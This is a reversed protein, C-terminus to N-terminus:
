YVGPLEGFVAPMVDAKYELEIVQNLVESGQFIHFQSGLDAAIGEGSIFHEPMHSEAVPQAIERGLERATFLLPDGNGTGQCLIGFQQETILGGAGQIIDGALRDQPQKLVGAPLLTHRDHDDGVIRGNGRHCILHDMDLITPYIM